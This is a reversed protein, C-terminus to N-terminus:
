GGREEILILYLYAVVEKIRNSPVVWLGLWMGSAKDRIGYIEIGISKLKDHGDGSWEDDPGLSTLVSRHIKKGDPKRHHFGEPAHVRM